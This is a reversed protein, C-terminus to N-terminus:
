NYFNNINEKKPKDKGEVYFSALCKGVAEIPVTQKSYSQLIDLAKESSEKGPCIELPKKQRPACGALLFGAAFVAFLLRLSSDMPALM